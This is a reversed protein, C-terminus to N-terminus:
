LKVQEFGLYSKGKSGINAEGEKGLSPSGPADYGMDACKIRWKCGPVDLSPSSFRGCNCTEHAYGPEKKVYLNTIPCFQFLHTTSATSVTARSQPSSKLSSPLLCM